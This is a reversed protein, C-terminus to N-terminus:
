CCVGARKPQNGHDDPEAFCECGVRENCAAVGGFMRPMNRSLFLSHSPVIWEFEEVEEDVTIYDRAHYEGTLPDKEADPKLKRVPKHVKRSKKLKYPACRVLVQRIHEPDNPQLLNTVQLIMDKKHTIMRAMHATELGFKKQYDRITSLNYSEHGVMIMAGGLDGDQEADAVGQEAKDLNLAKRNVSAAGTTVDEVVPPKEADAALAAEFTERAEAPGGAGGLGVSDSNGYVLDGASTQLVKNGFDSGGASGQRSLAALKKFTSGDQLSGIHLGTAKDYGDWLQEDADVEDDYVDAAANLKQQASSSALNNYSAKPKCCTGKATKFKDGVLAIAAQASDDV